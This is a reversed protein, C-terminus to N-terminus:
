WAQAATGAEAGKSRCFHRQSLVRQTMYGKLAQATALM